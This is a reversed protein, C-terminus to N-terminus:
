SSDPTVSARLTLMNQQILHCVLLIHTHSLCLLHVRHTEQDILEWSAQKCVLRHM